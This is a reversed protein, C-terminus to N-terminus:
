VLAPPARSRYAQRPATQAVPASAATIVASWAVSRAPLSPPPAGVANQLQSSVLCIGCYRAAGPDNGPDALAHSYYVHLETGFQAVLLALALVRAILSTHARTLPM